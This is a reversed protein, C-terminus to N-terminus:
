VHFSLHSYEIATNLESLLVTELRTSQMCDKIHIYNCFSLARHHLLKLASMVIVTVM